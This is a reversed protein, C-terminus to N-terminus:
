KLDAVKIKGAKAPALTRTVPASERQLKPQAETPERRLVPTLKHIMAAGISATSTPM